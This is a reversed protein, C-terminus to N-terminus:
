DNVLVARAEKVTVTTVPGPVDVTRPIAFWDRGDLSVDAGFTTVVRTGFEGRDRYRHTVDGDPWIGGTSTTPGESTGDGFEYTFGVLKPRIHVRVGLLTRVDVEGPEFGEESWSVRYFTKLNVLTVEGEPQIRVTPKAWPTRMFAAGIQELTLRPGAGPAIDSHCTTGVVTWIGREDPPTVLRQWITLRNNGVLEAPCATLARECLVGNEPGRNPNNGDCDPLSRYEYYPAKGDAPLTGQGPHEPLGAVQARSMLGVYAAQENQTCDIYDDNCSGAQGASVYPSVFLMYTAVAGVALARVM